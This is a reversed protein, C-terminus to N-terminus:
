ICFRDVGGRAPSEALGLTILSLGLAVPIVLEPRRRPLGIVIAASAVPLWVLSSLIPFDM